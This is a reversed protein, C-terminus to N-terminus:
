LGKSLYIFHIYQLFILIKLTHITVAGMYLRAPGQPWHLSGVQGRVTDTPSQLPLCLHVNVPDVRGPGPPAPAGAAALLDTWM